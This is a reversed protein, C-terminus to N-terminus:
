EEVLKGLHQDSYIRGQTKGKFVAKEFADIYKEIPPWITVLGEPSVDFIKAHSKEDFSQMQNFSKNFKEADEGRMKFVEKLYIVSVPFARNPMRHFLYSILVQAPISAQNNSWKLLKEETKKIQSLEETQIDPVSERELDDIASQLMNFHVDQPKEFSLPQYWFGAGLAALILNGSTVPSSLSVEGDPYVFSIKEVLMKLDDASRKKTITRTHPIQSLFSYARLFEEVSSDSLIDERGEKHNESYIYQVLRHYDPMETPLRMCARGVALYLPKAPAQFGKEKLYSDFASWNVAVLPPELFLDAARLSAYTKFGLARALAEVRHSSKIDPLYKTLDAKMSDIQETFAILIRLTFV